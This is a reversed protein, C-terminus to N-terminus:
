TKYPENERENAEGGKMLIAKIFPFTHKGNKERHSPIAGYDSKPCFM